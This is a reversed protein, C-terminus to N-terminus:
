IPNVDFLYSHVTKLSNLTILDLTFNAQQKKNQQQM